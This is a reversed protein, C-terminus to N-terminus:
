IASVVYESLSGPYRKRLADFVLDWESAAGWTARKWPEFFPLFVSRKALKKNRLSLAVAKFDKMIKSYTERDKALTFNFYNVFEAEEITGTQDRDLRRVLRDNKTQDWVSNKQGIVRRALGLAM